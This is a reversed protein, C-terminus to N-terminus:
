RREQLGLQACGAIFAQSGFAQAPGLAGTAQCAGQHLLDAGWALLEATLDYPSPGEVVVETLFEDGDFARAVAVSTSQAREAEGPGKGTPAFRRTLSKLGASTGPLYSLTHLAASGRQAAKTLHGAWGLFVDVTTLAPDQRPLTFHESGGISLADRRKGNIVFTQVDHATRMTQLRGERYAFSSELLMAAASAKTGSSIGFGGEIFYGIEIRTAPRGRDHCRELAITGALNGPVYDYGFATLLRAGTRKAAANSDLFVNRIFPPEGTSDVYGCGASIAAQLAASGHSTFPGVTTTLVDSQDKILAAVSNTDASDAVATPCTRQFTNALEEQLETLRAPSRGALVPTLGRRMLAFATLKGTFGTAGFLIVANM